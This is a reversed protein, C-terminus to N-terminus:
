KLSSVNVARRCGPLKLGKLGKLPCAQKLVKQFNPYHFCGAEPEAAPAGPTQLLTGTNERLLCAEQHFGREAGLTTLYALYRMM